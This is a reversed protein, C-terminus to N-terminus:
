PAARTTAAVITDTDVYLQGSCSAVANHNLPRTTNTLCAGTGDFMWGHCSGTVDGTSAVVDPVLACGAHTCKATYAFLGGSDHGVIVNPGALGPSSHLAFASTSPRM